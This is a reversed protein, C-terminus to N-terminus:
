EYGEIEPGPEAAAGSERRLRRFLADAETSPDSPVAEALAPRLHLPARPGSQSLGDLVKQCAACGEVHDLVLTLEPDSLEERLLRELSETPPCTKMGSKGM